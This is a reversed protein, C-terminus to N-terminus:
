WTTYLDVTVLHSRVGAPVPEAFPVNNQTAAVVKATDASATDWGEVTFKWTGSWQANASDLTGDAPLYDWFFGDQLVADCNSAAVVPTTTGPPSAWDAGQIFLAKVGAQACSTYFAGAKSRLRPIVKVGSAIPLLEFTYSTTQNPSLTITQVTSGYWPQEQIQETLQGTVPDPLLVKRAIIGDVVIQHSGPTLDWAYAQVPKGASDAMTCSLEVPDANDIYVKVKSVGAGDAAIGANACTRELDNVFFKWYIQARGKVNTPNLTVRRTVAGNVTVTGTATYLVTKKAADLADITFTYTAGRFNYLTVGDTKDLTCNYYGDAELSERGWPGTLTVRVFPAQSAVSACNQGDPFSWLFTIDGSHGVPPNDPDNGDTHIICGSLPLAAVLAVPLWRM